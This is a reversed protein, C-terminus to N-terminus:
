TSLSVSRTHVWLNTNAVARVMERPTMNVFFATGYKVQLSTLVSEFYLRFTEWWARIRSETVFDCCVDGVNGNIVKEVTEACHRKYPIIRDPLEHHIKRCSQNQCRLRRIVFIEKEDISNIVGRRRTGIVKLVGICVPCVSEEESLIYILGYEDREERYQTIIVM